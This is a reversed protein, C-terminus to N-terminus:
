PSPLVELDCDLVSSYDRINKDIHAMLKKKKEEPVNETVVIIRIKWKTM